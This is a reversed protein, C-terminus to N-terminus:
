DARMRHGALLRKIYISTKGLSDDAQRAILTRRDQVVQPVMRLVRQELAAEAPLRVRNREPVIAARLMTRHPVIPRMGAGAMADGHLAVPRYSPSRVPKEM